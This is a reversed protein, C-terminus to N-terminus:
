AEDARPEAVFRTVIFWSACTFVLLTAQQGLREAWWAMASTTPTALLLPLTDLALADGVHLTAVLDGFMAAWALLAVFAAAVVGGLFLQSGLDAAAPRASAVAHARLAATLAPPAEYRVAETLAFALSAVVAGEAGTGADGPRADTWVVPRNGTSNGDM